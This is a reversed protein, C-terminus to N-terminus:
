VYTAVIILYPKKKKFFPMILCTEFFFSYVLMALCVEMLKKLEETKTGWIFAVTKRNGKCM